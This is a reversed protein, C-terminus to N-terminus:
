ILLIAHFNGERNLNATDQQYIKWRIKLKELKEEHLLLRSYEFKNAPYIYNTTKKIEGVFLTLDLM